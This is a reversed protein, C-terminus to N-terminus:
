TPHPHFFDDPDELRQFPLSIRQQIMQKVRKFLEKEAEINKSVDGEARCKRANGSEEEGDEDSRDNKLLDSFKTHTFIAYTIM